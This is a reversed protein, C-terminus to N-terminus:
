DGGGRDLRRSRTRIQQSADGRVAFKSSNEATRGCTRNGLRPSAYAIRDELARGTVSDAEPRQRERDLARWILNWTDEVLDNYLERLPKVCQRVVVPDRSGARAKNFQMMLDYIREGDSPDPTPGVPQREAAEAAHFGDKGRGPEIWADIAALSGVEYPSMATVYHSTLLDTASLVLQQGPMHAHEALWMFHRGMRPLIPDAAREGTTPLYALRRGLRGILGIAEVNAVVIQPLQKPVSLEEGFHEVLETPGIAYAEFLTCFERAFATLEAFLLVRDLPYGPVFLKYGSSKTGVAISGVSYPEAGLQWAVICLPSKAVARHRFMASPQARGEKYARAALMAQFSM